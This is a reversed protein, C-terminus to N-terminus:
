LYIAFYFNVKLINGFTGLPRNPFFKNDIDYGTILYQIVDFNEISELIDSQNVATKLHLDNIM